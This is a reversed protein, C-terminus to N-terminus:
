PSGADVDAASALCKSIAADKAVLARYAPADELAVRGAVAHARACDGRRAAARSQQVLADLKPNRSANTTPPTSAAAANLIAEDGDRATPAVPSPSPSPSALGGAPSPQRNVTPSANSGREDHKAPAALRPTEARPQQAAPSRREVSLAPAPVPPPPPAPDDHRAAPATPVPQDRLHVPAVERSERARDLVLAGGVFLLVTAFALASPRRLAASLRQWWSRTTPTAAHLRAAALLEAMGRAPPPEDRMSLWVTRMARLQPDDDRDDASM